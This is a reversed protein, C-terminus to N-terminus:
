LNIRDIFDFQKGLIEKMLDRNDIIQSKLEKITQILQRDTKLHANNVFLRISMGTIGEHDVKALRDLIQAKLSPIIM